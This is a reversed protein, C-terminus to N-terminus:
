VLTRFKQRIPEDQDEWWMSLYGVEAWNFRYSPNQEIEPILSKLIEVVYNSYYVDMPELWGADLHTHPLAHIM